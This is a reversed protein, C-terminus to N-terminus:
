SAPSYDKLCAAYICQQDNSRPPTWVFTVDPIRKHGSQSGRWPFQQVRHHDHWWDDIESHMGHVANPYAM